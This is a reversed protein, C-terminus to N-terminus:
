KDAFTLTRNLVETPLILGVNLLHSLISHNLISSEKVIADEYIGFYYFRYELFQEHWDSAEKHTIHYLREKNISGPNESFRNM